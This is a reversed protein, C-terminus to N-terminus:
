LRHSFITEIRGCEESDAHAAQRAHRQYGCTMLGIDVIPGAYYIEHCGDNRRMPRVSGNHDRSVTHQLGRVTCDACPDSSRVGVSSAHKSVLHRLMGTLCHM